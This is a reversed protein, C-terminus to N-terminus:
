FRFPTALLLGFFMGFCLPLLIYYKKYKEKKLIYKKIFYFFFVISIIVGTNLGLSALQELM